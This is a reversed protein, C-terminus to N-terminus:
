RFSFEKAPQSRRDDVLGRKVLNRNRAVYDISPRVYGGAESDSTLVDGRYKGEEDFGYSSHTSRKLFKIANEDM